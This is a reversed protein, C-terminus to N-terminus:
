TKAIMIMEVMDAVDECCDMIHELLQYLEKLKIIEIPNTEKDFLELMGESYTRDGEEELRNVEIIFENLNKRSKKFQKLAKMLDHLRECAVVALEVFKCLYENSNSIHMMYIHNAVDDISDTISEIGNLIGVIDTRDIPTIFAVDIIKMSEHVHKDGNHEAEKVLKLEVENIVGDAFASQLRKAAELSISIGVEFMEFYDVTKRSIMNGM